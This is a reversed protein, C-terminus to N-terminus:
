LFPPPPTRIMEVAVRRSSRGRERERKEESLWAWGRGKGRLRSGWIVRCWWMLSFILPLHISHSLPPPTSYWPPLDVFASTLSLSSSPLFFFLPLLLPISTTHFIHVGSCSQSMVSFERNMVTHRGREREWVCVLLVCLKMDVHIKEHSLLIFLETLLYQWSRGNSSEVERWISPHLPLCYLQGHAFYFFCCWLGQIWDSDCKVITHTHTNQYFTPTIPPSYIM